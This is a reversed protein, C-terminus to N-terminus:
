RIHVISKALGQTALISLLQEMTMPPNRLSERQRELAAHVMDPATALLSLLFDDPHQAEIRYRSLAGSPFHKLNFTLILGAKAHIAAALVHCDGPDPLALGPTLVQYGDVVCDPISEDM